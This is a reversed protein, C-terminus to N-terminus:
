FIKKELQGNSMELIRDSNKALSENHTVLLMSAGTENCISWLLDELQAASKLDLNGTPEDALILVPSNVLARAFAVRLQEGGSLEGPRHTTRHSLNMGNLLFEAKERVVNTKERRILGPMMVNELATFEPLLHHFQFVFGIKELRLKSRKRDDLNITDTGELIIKGSTPQELLGLQHLFTSKGAGSPGIVAATEGHELAFDLNNLVQVSKGQSNYSKCLAEARIIIDGM